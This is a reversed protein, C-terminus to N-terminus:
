TLVVPATATVVLAESPASSVTKSVGSSAPSERKSIPKSVALEELRSPWKILNEMEKKPVAQLM